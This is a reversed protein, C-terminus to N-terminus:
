CILDVEFCIESTLRELDGVKAELDRVESQEAPESFELDSLQGELDEALSKADEAELRAEETEYVAARDTEGPPGEPRTPGAPGAPGEPGTKALLTIGSGIAASTICVALLTLLYSRRSRRAEPSETESYPQEAPAPM